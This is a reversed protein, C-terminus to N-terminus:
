TRITRTLDWHEEATFNCEDSTCEITGVAIGNDIVALSPMSSYTIDTGCDPCTHLEENWDNEATEDRTTNTM